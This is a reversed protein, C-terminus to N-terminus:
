LFLKLVGHIVSFFKCTLLLAPVILNLFYYSSRRQYILQIQWSPFCLTQVCIPISTNVQSGLYQFEGTGTYLSLLASDSSGNALLVAEDISYADARDLTLFKVTCFQKDFPFYQFDLQCTSSFKRPVIYNVTGFMSVFLNSSTDGTIVFDNSASNMLLISPTWVSNSPVNIATLNGFAASDWVLRPDNWYLYLAGTIELM